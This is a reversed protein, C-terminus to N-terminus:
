EDGGELIDYYIELESRNELRALEQVIDVIRATHDGLEAGAEIPLKVWPLLKRPGKRGGLCWFQAIGDYISTYRWGKSTLYAEIAEPQLKKYAAGDRIEVKVQLLTKMKHRKERWESVLVNNIGRVRRLEQKVIQVTAEADVCRRLGVDRKAYMAYYADRVFRFLQGTSFVWEGRERLYRGLRDFARDVHRPDPDMPKSADSMAVGDEQQEIIPPGVVVGTTPLWYKTEENVMTNKNYCMPVHNDLSIKHGLRLVAAM